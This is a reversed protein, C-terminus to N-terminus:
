YWSEKLDCSLKIEQSDKDVTTVQDPNTAFEKKKEEDDWDQRGGWYQKIMKVKHLNLVIM